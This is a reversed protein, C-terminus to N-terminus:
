GYTCKAKFEPGLYIQLLPPNTRRSLNKLLMVKFHLSQKDGSDERSLEMGLRSEIKSHKFYCSSATKHM